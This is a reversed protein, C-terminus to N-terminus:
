AGPPAADYAARAIWWRAGCRPCFVEVAADGRFLEEDQGAYIQRLARVIKEPNCGCRLQVTKEELLDLPGAFLAAADRATMAEVRERGGDPLAQVLGFRTGDLEVLRAPFQESRAYYTEFMHLIDLGHVELTSQIPEARRRVAQVFMRGSPGAQVDETFARGTIAVEGGGTDGTLFFNLAPAPVNITVGVSEDPPRTALHLGLAALGDRMLTFTLGDLPLEWRRVHEEYARFIPAFDGEAMALTRGRDLSRRIRAVGPRDTTSV